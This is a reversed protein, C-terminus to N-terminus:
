IGNHKEIYHICCNAGDEDNWGACAPHDRHISCPQYLLAKDCQNCDDNRQDYHGYKEPCLSIDIIKM